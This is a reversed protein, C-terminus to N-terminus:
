VGIGNSDIAPADPIVLPDSAQEMTSTYTSTNLDIVPVERRALTSEWDSSPSSFKLFGGFIVLALIVVLFQKSILHTM